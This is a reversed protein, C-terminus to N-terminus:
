PKFSFAKYRSATWFTNALTARGLSTQEHTITVDISSKGNTLSAPLPFDDDRWCRDHGDVGVGPSGGASYWTGAPQGDITVTARQNYVCSNFTRRLFAGNGDPDLTMTFSTSGKTSAVTDAILPSNVTYEYAATLPARTSGSASYLHALRSAANGIILSDTEVITERPTGYWMISARYPESAQNVAGHEFDVVLRNNFPISDAILYRYEAAGDIDTGAPNNTSSPLGGLANSVQIGKRWYNGGYGWEETGTVAIQPTKSGDIYIHPDGELTRGIRNFNIVSAVMRGSGRYDLFRMDQGPTPTPISVYNAHFPAWWNDPATYAESRVSWRINPLGASNSAPVLVIRASSKFPMPYYLNYSMYSSGDSTINALFGQVLQRGSPKYVGAGNGALFKLPANVSPSAEGDWYIKLRTNGLRVKRNFLTEIKIARIQRKGTLTALVTETNAAGFTVEGSQSAINTPAIDTGSQELLAAVQAAKATDGAADPLAAGYPLKKYIAYFNGYNVAASNATFRGNTGFALSPLLINTGKSQNGNLSLPFPILSSPETTPSTQGLNSVDVIWQSTDNTMYWPSCCNEQMRLFNIYGPGSQHFLVPHNSTLTGHRGISDNNTGGPDATSQGATRNGTELYPLKDWHLYADHGLYQPAPDAQAVNFHVVALAVSLVAALSRVTAMDLKGYAIKM